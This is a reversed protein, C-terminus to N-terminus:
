PAPLLGEAEVVWGPPLGPHRGSGDYGAAMVAVATLLGGNGPLYAPLDPTQWNHGNPLYTNKPHDALLADIAWDPRGIRTATLAMMPYDWGWTSEWNWDSRVDALTAAMIAPDVRGTDPTVGLAALASPHDVRTTWPPIGIAPYTAAHPRPRPLREPVAHSLLSGDGSTEHPRPRQMGQAVARWQRALDPEGAREAWAAAVALGWSWYVLEYTPDTIQEKLGAYCEQAPILPPPFVLGAPGPVPYAAMFRATERVVPWWRVATAPSARRVLEALYIPHPQQWVLFSGISSPTPRGEPGASKVWRVGPYGQDRALNWPSGLAIEYWQLVSEVIEPNGWLAFHALHWWQMELHFKGRWSNVYLGTEPVPLRGASNIRTLYRSLVIRRELELAQPHDSRSLDIVVGAWFRAWGAATRALIATASPILVKPEEVGYVPAAPKAWQTGTVPQFTIVAELTRGTGPGSVVVEHTGPQRVAGDTVIGVEYATDDLVRHVIWGGGTRELTTTHRDPQDWVQANGPHESGYPFSLRLGVPGAGSIRVVVSDSELDIATVVEYAVGAVTFRSTLVGTALDLRQDIGTLDAGTVGPPLVLGVRGLDLRHPNARFYVEAPTGEAMVGSAGTGDAARGWLQTGLDVYPVPGRPTDYARVCEALDYTGPSTHWGWHAMCGLLTGGGPGPYLEPFTQLGTVDVACAFQGNGLQLPSRPDVGYVRPSHRALWAGRDIM